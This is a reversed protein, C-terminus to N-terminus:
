GTVAYLLGDGDRQVSGEAILFQLTDLVRSEEANVRDMLAQVTGKEKLAELIAASLEGFERPKLEGKAKKVCVDCVGCPKADREGFYAVLQQTRCIENNRAYAAVAAIRHEMVKKRAEVRAM